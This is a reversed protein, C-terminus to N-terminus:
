QSKEISERTLKSTAYWKIFAGVVQLYCSRCWLGVFFRLLECYPKNTRCYSVTVGRATEQGVYSITGDKEIVIAYRANRETDPVM